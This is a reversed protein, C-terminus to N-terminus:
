KLGRVGHPTRSTDYDAGPKYVYSRLSFSKETSMNGPVTKQLADSFEKMQSDIMDIEHLLMAEPVMPLSVAGWELNGHHAAICHEVLLIREMGTYPEGKDAARRVEEEIMNIGIVTHGLMRGKPTYKAEGFDDTELEIIKGIDHLATAVLLVGIDVGKYICGISGAIILMKYTHDLLGGYYAHHNSQAASSQIIKDKYRNYINKVLTYLEDNGIYRYLGYFREGKQLMQIAQEDDADPGNLIDTFMIEPDLFPKRIFDKPDAESPAACLYSCIYSIQLNYIQPKITAQVVTGEPTWKAIEEKTHDWMKAVIDSEGDVFKLECYIKGNKATRETVSTLLLIIDNSEDVKLESLKQIKGM